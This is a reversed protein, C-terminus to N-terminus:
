PLYVLCLQVVETSLLQFLFSGHVRAVMVLQLRICARMLDDVASVFSKEEEEIAMVMVDTPYIKGTMSPTQAVTDTGDSSRAQTLFLIHGAAKQVDDKDLARLLPGMFSHHVGDPKFAFALCVGPIGVDKYRIQQDKVSKVSKLPNSNTSLKKPPTSAMAPTNTKGPSGPQIKSTNTM